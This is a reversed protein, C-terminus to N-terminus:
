DGFTLGMLSGLRFCRNNSGSLCCGFWGLTGAKSWVASRAEGIGFGFGFGAVLGKLSRGGVSGAAGGLFIRVWLGFGVEVGMAAGLIGGVLGVTVPGLPGFGVGVGM